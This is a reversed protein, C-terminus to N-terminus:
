ALREVTEAVSRRWEPLRLGLDREIKSCDLVANAPRMAKTPWDATAIPRVEATPLGLRRCQDMIEVAFDFWSASGGGALHFTEGLGTRDGGQWRGAIQLIAEAFDLASTPCGRQDDVVRLVQRDAMTLMTRVFNRGFPSYVWATRLIVHEPNAARVAKEGALKSRGYVSLPETPADERYPEAAAGDFVYDTSITVFACNIQKSALALNEVGAANAAYCKDINTEAGDVDTYAACNLVADFKERGFTEFVINKDSIDLEQRTLAIIEDGIARCYEITARAVM